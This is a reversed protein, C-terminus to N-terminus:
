QKQLKDIRPLDYDDFLEKKTPKKNKKKKNPIIRQFLNTNWLKEVQKDRSKKKM